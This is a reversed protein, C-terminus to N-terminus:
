SRAHASGNISFASGSAKIPSLAYSSPWAIAFDAAYPNSPLFAGAKTTAGANVIVFDLRFDAILGPLQAWVATRGTKGVMDGLFLLRM